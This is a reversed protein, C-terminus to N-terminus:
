RRPLCDDNKHRTNLIPFMAKAFLKDIYGLQIPNVSYDGHDFLSQVAMISEKPVIHYGDMGLFHGMEHTAVAYASIIADTSDTEPKGKGLVLIKAKWLDVNIEVHSTYRIILSDRGIRFHSSDRVTNIGYISPNRLTLKNNMAFLNKGTRKQGLLDNDSTDTDINKIYIRGQFVNNWAQAACDFLKRAVNVSDNGVKDIYPIIHCVITDAQWKGNTYPAHYYKIFPQTPSYQAVLTLPISYCVFMIAIVIICSKNM